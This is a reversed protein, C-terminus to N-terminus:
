RPDGSPFTRSGTPATGASLVATLISDGSPEPEGDLYGVVIGNVGPVPADYECELAEELTTEQWENDATVRRLCVTRAFGSTGERLARDLCDNYGTPVTIVATGTPRLISRVKEVADIVKVADAASEHQGIHEFTSISVVLDFKEPPCYDLIDVNIIGSYRGKEDRDVVAHAITYYHSLVNGVELVHQGNHQRVENWVVPIEVARENAWTQNYPRVCYDYAKGGAEFTKSALPCRRYKLLWRMYDYVYGAFPHWQRPIIRKIKRVVPEKDSM